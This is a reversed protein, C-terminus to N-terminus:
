TIKEKLNHVEIVNQDEQMGLFLVYGVPGGIVVPFCHKFPLSTREQSQSQTTGRGCRPPPINTSHGNGSAVSDRRPTGVSGDVNWCLSSETFHSGWCVVHIMSVDLFGLSEVGALNAPGKVEHPGIASLVYRLSPGRRDPVQLCFGEQM